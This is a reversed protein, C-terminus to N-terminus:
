NTDLSDTCLDFLLQKIKQTSNAEKYRKESFVPIIEFLVNWTILWIEFNFNILARIKSPNIRLKRLKRENWFNIFRDM